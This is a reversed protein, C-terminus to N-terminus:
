RKDTKPAIHYCSQKIKAVYVSNQTRGTNVPRATNVSSITNVQKLGTKTLVASPVFSKLINPNTYRATKVILRNNEFSRKHCHAILH